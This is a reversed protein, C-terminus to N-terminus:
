GNDRDREERVAKAADYMISTTAIEDFLAFDRKIKERVSLKKIKPRIKEVVLGGLSIRRNFAEQRLQEHVDQPFSITARIM